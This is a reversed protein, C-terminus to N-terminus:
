NSQIFLVLSYDIKQKKLTEDWRKPRVSKEEALAEEARTREKAVEAMGPFNHNKGLFECFYFLVFRNGFISSGM